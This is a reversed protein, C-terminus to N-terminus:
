RKVSKYSILKLVKYHFGDSSMGHCSGKAKSILFHDVDPCTTRKKIEILSLYHTILTLSSSSVTEAAAVKEVKPQSPGAIKAADKGPCPEVPSAAKPVLIPDKPKDNKKEEKKETEAAPDPDETSGMDETNDGSSSSSEEDESDDWADEDDDVSDQFVLGLSPDFWVHKYCLGTTVLFHVTHEETLKLTAWASSSGLGQSGKKQAEAEGERQGPGSRGSFTPSSAHCPCANYQLQFGVCGYIDSPFM